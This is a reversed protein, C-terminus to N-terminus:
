FATASPTGMFSGKDMPQGSWLRVEEPHKKRWTGYAFCGIGAAGFVAFLSWGVRFSYKKLDRAERLTAASDDSLFANQDYHGLPMFQTGVTASSTALAPFYPGYVAGDSSLVTCQFQCEANSVNPDTCALIGLEPPPRDCTVGPPPAAPYGPLPIGASIYATIAEVEDTDGFLCGAIVTVQVYLTGFETELESIIPEITTQSCLQSMYTMPSLASNVQFRVNAGITFGMFAFINLESAYKSTADADNRVDSMLRLECEALDECDPDYVQVDSGLVSTPDLSEVNHFYPRSVFIPASQKVSSINLLGAPMPFAEYGAPIDQNGTCGTTGEVCVRLGSSFFAQNRFYETTNPELDTYPKLEDDVIDFVLTELGKVKGKRRNKNQFQINRQLTPIFIDFSTGEPVGKPVQSVAHGAVVNPDLWGAAESDESGLWNNFDESDLNAWADSPITDDLLDSYISNRSEGLYTNYYRTLRSDGDGSYYSQSGLAIGEDPTTTNAILGPSLTPFVQCFGEALIENYAPDLAACSEEGLSCLATLLGRPVGAVDGAYDVGGEPLCYQDKFLACVSEGLVDDVLSAKIFGLCGANLRYLVPSEYGAIFDRVPRRIFLGPECGWQTGSVPLPTSESCGEGDGRPACEFYQDGAGPVVLNIFGGEQSCTVIERGYCEDRAAYGTEPDALIAECNTPAAFSAASDLSYFIPNTGLAPSAAGPIGFEPRGLQNNYAASPFVYGVLLSVLGDVTAGGFAFLAEPVGGLGPTLNSTRDQLEAYNTMYSGVARQILGQYALDVSTIFVERDDLTDGSSCWSRDSNPWPQDGGSPYAIGDICVINQVYSWEYFTVDSRLQNPNYPARDPSAQTGFVTVYRVGIDKYRFPGVENLRPAAGLIAVEEANTVDFMYYDQYSDTQNIFDPYGFSDTDTLYVISNLQDDVAQPVLIAVLMSALSLLLLPIAIRRWGCYKQCANIQKVTGNASVEFSGVPLTAGGVNVFSQNGIQLLSQQHQDQVHKETDLLPKEAFSM